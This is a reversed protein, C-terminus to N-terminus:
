PKIFLLDPLVRSELLHLIPRDFDLFRACPSLALWEPNHIGFKQHLSRGSERTLSEIRGNNGPYDLNKHNQSLHVDRKATDAYQSNPQNVVLVTYTDINESIPFRPLVCTHPPVRRKQDSVEKKLPPTYITPYWSMMIYRDTSYDEVRMETADLGLPNMVLQSCRITSVGLKQIGDLLPNHPKATPELVGRLGFNHFVV